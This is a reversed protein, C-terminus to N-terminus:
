WTLPRTSRICAAMIDTVWKAKIDNRDTLNSLGKAIDDVNEIIVTQQVPLRTLKHPELQFSLSPFGGGRAISALINGVARDELAKNSPEAECRALVVNTPSAPRATPVAFTVASFLICLASLREM